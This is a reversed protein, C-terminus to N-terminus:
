LGLDDLGTTENTPQKLKEISEPDFGFRRSLKLMLDVCKQKMSAAPHPYPAGNKGGFAIHGEADLTHAHKLYEAFTECYTAFLQVTRENLTGADILPPALRNWEELAEDKLRDPPEFRM